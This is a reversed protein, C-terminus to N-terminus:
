KIICASTGIFQKQETLTFRVKWDNLNTLHYTEGEICVSQYLHQYMIDKTMFPCDDNMDDWIPSKKSFFLINVCGKNDNEIQKSCFSIDNILCQEIM